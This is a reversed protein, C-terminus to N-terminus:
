VFGPQNKTKQPQLRQLCIVGASQPSPLAEIVLAIGASCEKRVFRRGAREESELRLQQM